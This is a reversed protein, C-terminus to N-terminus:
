DDNRWSGGANTNQYRMADMDGRVTNGVTELTDNLVTCGVYAPSGIPLKSLWNRVERHFAGIVPLMSEADSATFGRKTRSM